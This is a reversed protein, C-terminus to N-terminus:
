PAVLCEIPIGGNTTRWATRCKLLTAQTLTHDPSLFTLSTERANALRGLAAYLLSPDGGTDVRVGYPPNTVIHTGEAPPLERIDAEVFKVDKAVGARRATALLARLEEKAIWASLVQGTDEHDILGNWMRTFAKDSLRERGRLLRRRNAWVPDNKLGRRGTQDRTVRQRVETLAQNALRVVHFHDAVILAQPLAQQVARRYTACPDMAVIEVADKWDQGLDDLWGTVAVTTRGATQGLLGQRGTLDVFNTEFRESRRWKGTDPDQTWTPRGRRTEDIGLVRVPAPTGLLADAHVVFAEHVTPWSIGFVAVASSVAQGAGVARAAARRLRGTVRARAPVEGIQETFAKRPCPKERCAYQVKHWRM